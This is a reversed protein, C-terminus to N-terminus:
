SLVGRLWGGIVEFDADVLGVAPDVWHLLAPGDHTADVFALDAETIADDIWVFARGAAWEVLPKTKWFVGGELWPEDPWHVVPLEPLGIEPAIWRNADDEWTTAWVIEGPLAMIREGHDPRLWVRLPRVSALDWGSPRMRYTRYGAPRRTPAAEFPNLPGDVDLFVIPGRAADM